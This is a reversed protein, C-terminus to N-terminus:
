KKCWAHYIINERKRTGLASVVKSAYPWTHKLRYFVYKQNHHTKKSAVWTTYYKKKHFIHYITQIISYWRMLFPLIEIQEANYNKLYIESLGTNQLIKLKIIILMLGILCRNAFRKCRCVELLGYLEALFSQNRNRRRQHWLGSGNGPSIRTM